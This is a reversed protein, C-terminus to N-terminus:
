PPTTPPALPFVTTDIPIQHAAGTPAKWFDTTSSTAQHIAQHSNWNIQRDTTHVLNRPDTVQLPFNGKNFNWHHVQVGDM